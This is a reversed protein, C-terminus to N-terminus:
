SPSSPRSFLAWRLARWRAAQARQEPWLWHRQGTDTLLSLLLFSQLDLHVTVRGTMRINVSAWCWGQGDWCLYGSTARQWDWLNLVLVGLLSAGFLWLRWNTWHLQESWLLGTVLGLVACFGILTIQLYSRGVPYIVAPASHM